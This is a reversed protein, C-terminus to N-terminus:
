LNITDTFIKLLTDGIPTLNVLTQQQTWPMKKEESLLAHKQTESYQPTLHHAQHDPVLRVYTIEALPDLLINNISELHITDTFFKPLTDGIPTLNVLAQQQIWPM